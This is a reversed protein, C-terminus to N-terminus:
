SLGSAWSRPALTGAREWQRGNQRGPGAETRHRSSARDQTRCTGLARGAKVSMVRIEQAQSRNSKREALLGLWMKGGRGKLELMGKCFTSTRRSERGKM